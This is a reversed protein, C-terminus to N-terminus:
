IMSRIAERINEFQKKGMTAILKSLRKDDMIRIQGILASGDIGNFIIPYHYIQEKRKSTFPVGLFTHRSLKKLVLVPRTYTDGKGYVESGINLGVSCWWVERENFFLPKHLANL